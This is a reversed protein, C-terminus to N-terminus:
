GEDWPEIPDFGEQAAYWVARTEPALLEVLGYILDTVSGGERGDEDEFVDQMELDDVLPTTNGSEIQHDENRIIGGEAAETLRARTIAAIRDNPSTMGEQERQASFFNTHTAMTAGVPRWGEEQASHVRAFMRDDQLTRDTESASHARQRRRQLRRTGQRIQRLTEHETQLQADQPHLTRREGQVADTARLQVLPRRQEVAHEQLADSQMQEISEDQSLAHFSVNWLIGDQPVPDAHAQPQPPWFPNWDLLPPFLEYPPPPTERGTPEDTAKLQDTQTQSKRRKAAQDAKKHYAEVKKMANKLNEKPEWTTEDYGVWKVEYWLQDDVEEHNIIRQVDWEDEEQGRYTEMEYLPPETDGNAPELMAVHQVPYIKMKAPLDLKYTLDSVKTLVKYPGLKVHDLKRSPRRSKFNKHLLWVKDGEKLDPGESRKKDYYLKMREQVLKASKCLERHLTMLEEVREKADESTKKAQRPTLSTAPDYGYNAKFPSMGIGEQPTANYAFQAVPLLGSWNNQAYNVYHRLYQELTQNLRETQGDTQPHYATSTAARIGQEALFVEWFAAVFRPDRDSIIKEPSGHRAFVEKVYIRAVDEASIEETVAIFYGWKTLKDVIVLVADHLQGTVPDKSKPLKTIFDWSVIKWPGSPTEVPQLLGYPKHRTFKNRQCDPCERTVQRALAHVGHVIYEKGLRRVLATAGNHGQTLGQHFNEVFEKAINRPIYTAERNAYDESDPDESQAEQIRQTWSSVPAEHTGSLQPHNYRIRGDTDERLLAGSVKENGQLEEKRSLADARANDTGRVHEIEFHYEALMEAWRVQRRNLEKTTLFSTLNKHDTKVVFPEKTGQLFARWEKLAVVIGLLEKNYIDYNLEPPTMKRSYYAVPHWVEGHKQLLCAGLAFDSSDTEVKTPLEPRYIKLIPEETFKEKVERFLKSKENDWNWPENKKTMRTFPEIEKSWKAIFRRYYNCFGLFSRLGTVSEPDKWNVIAEIKKPDMSIQGPEIIFGVFDTKKTHFECKEIAVPINEQHLKELVWEVHKEHEEESDSYIVIDDLYAMVFEDLHEGLVSNIRRQFTAPANTFGFQLVTPEFLGESTRFAGKWEDGEKIRIQHYAWRLDIKTFVQANGIRDQIESILPLPYRDKKTISNLQRYDICLRLKGNKKPVFLVPYGASSQSPRIRGLRLNERVFEKLAQKETETLKYTPFFRPSTGPELDIAHDWPAHEALREGFQENWLKKYKHYRKPIYGIEKEAEAYTAGIQYWVMKTQQRVKRSRTDRIEVEGTIWDIKPNYERLFPMGLVAEDKGLPLVDFSVELTRGEIEVQIPGTELHIVGNGYSIPDGSITILPYPNEKQRHPLGMREIAAPSIHNRTAGSDVLAEFKKDRWKVRLELHRGPTGKLTQPEVV